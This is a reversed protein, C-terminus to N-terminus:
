LPRRIFEFCGCGYPINETAALDVNKLPARLVDNFIFYFEKLEFEDAFFRHVWAASYIRHANFHIEPKGCPVVFLLRGGPNVARKLNGMAHIDGNVALQDGYRGLGIHEVVHMCSLSAYQGHWEADNTLNGQSCVLNDLHINAPRLDIFRTPVFGATATCFHLSSSVDVHERCHGATVAEAVKRIAWAVHYLYHPDFPTSPIAENLVPHRFYALFEPRTLSCEAVFSQLQAEYVAQPIGHQLQTM